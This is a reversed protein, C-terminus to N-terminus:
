ERSQDREHEDEREHRRDGVREAGDAPGQSEGARKDDDDAREDHDRQDPWDYEDGAAM